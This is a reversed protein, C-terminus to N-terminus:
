CREEDPYDIFAWLFIPKHSRRSEILGDTVSKKWKIKHWYHDPARLAQIQQRLQEPSAATTAQPPAATTPQGASAVLLSLATILTQYKLTADEHRHDIQKRYSRL